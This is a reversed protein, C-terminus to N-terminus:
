TARNAHNAHNTQNSDTHSPLAIPRLPGTAHNTHNADISRTACTVDIHLFAITVDNTKRKALNSFNFKCFFENLNLMMAIFHKPLQLSNVFSDISTKAKLFNYKKSVFYEVIRRLFFRVNLFYHFASVIM